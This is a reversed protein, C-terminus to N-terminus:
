PFSASRCSSPSPLMVAYPYVTTAFSESPVGETLSPSSLPGSPVNVPVASPLKIPRSPPGAPKAMPAVTPNVAPVVTSKFLALILPSEDFVNGFNQQWVPDRQD